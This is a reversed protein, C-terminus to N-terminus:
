PELLLLNRRPFYGTTRGRIVDNGLIGSAGALRIAMGMMAPLQGYRLTHTVGNLATPLLHTESTFQGAGPFFDEIVGASPYAAEVEEQYYSVQAGTDFFLRVSKSAVTASVIPVAMFFTLRQEVGASSLSETSVTLEGRRLDIIHDFASLVDAGIIGATTEGLLGSIHEATIGMYSAEPSFEAGCLAFPTNGFSRDAGTDYLWRENGIQVYLHDRHFFLPLTQTPM